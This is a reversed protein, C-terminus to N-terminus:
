YVLINLIVRIVLAATLLGFMVFTIGGAIEKGEFVFKNMKDNM